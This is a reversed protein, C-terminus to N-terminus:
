GSSGTGGGGTRRAVQRTGAQRGTIRGVANRVGQAVRRFLNGM